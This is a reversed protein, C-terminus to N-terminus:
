AGTSPWGPNQSTATVGPLGAGYVGQSHTYAGLGGPIGAVYRKVREIVDAPFIETVRPNELLEPYNLLASVQRFFTIPRQGLEQPNGINCFTLKNFPLKEGKKLKEAHQMARLM